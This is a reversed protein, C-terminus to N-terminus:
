KMGVNLVLKKKKRIIKNVRKEVKKKIISWLNEIPNLDPSYSPWDLVRPCRDQLLAVTLKARHKLDNDQQFTWHSPMIRSANEFLHDTLIERYLRGDMNQTFMHFGITGYASFAGWVHVKAPHKSVGKCPISTGVKHFTKM